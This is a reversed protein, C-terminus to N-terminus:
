AVAGTRGASALFADCIAKADDPGIAAAGAIQDVTDQFRAALDACASAAPISITSGVPPKPGRGTAQEGSPVEGPISIVAPEHPRLSRM